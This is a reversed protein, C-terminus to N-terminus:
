AAMCQPNIALKIDMSVRSGGHQGALILFYEPTNLQGSNIRTGNTVGGFVKNQWEDESQIKVIVRVWFGAGNLFLIGAHYVSGQVSTTGIFFDRNM